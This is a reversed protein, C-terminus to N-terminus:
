LASLHKLKRLFWIGYGVLLTGLALSLAGLVTYGSGDQELSWLGVGFAMASSLIIFIIHFGKLSM